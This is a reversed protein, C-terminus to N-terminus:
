SMILLLFFNKKKVSSYVGYGLDPSRLRDVRTEYGLGTWSVGPLAGDSESNLTFPKLPSPVRLSWSLSPNHPLVM